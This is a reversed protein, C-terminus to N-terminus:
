PIRAGPPCSSVTRTRAALAAARVAPLSSKPTGDAYYVGSQWGKLQTEDFGHFFFIGKVSPQCSALAIAQKYSDAQTKESVPDGEKVKSKAGRASQM